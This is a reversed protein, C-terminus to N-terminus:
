TKGSAIPFCGCIHYDKGTEKDHIGILMYQAALVNNNWSDYTDQRLGHAIKGLLSNDGYSSGYHLRTRQDGIAAFYRQDELTGQGLNVHVCTVHVARVLQVPDAM